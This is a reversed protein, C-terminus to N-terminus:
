GGPDWPPALVTRTVLMLQCVSLGHTPIAGAPACCECLSNPGVPLQTCSGDPNFVGLRTLRLDRPLPAAGAGAIARM